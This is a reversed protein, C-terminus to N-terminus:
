ARCCGDPGAAAAPRVIERFEVVLFPRIRKGGGLSAYRMADLLRAPRALEGAVTKAALLRDLLDETDAAVQELSQKFRDTPDAM